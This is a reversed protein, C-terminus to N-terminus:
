LSFKKRLKFGFCFGSILWPKKGSNNLFVQLQPLQLAQQVLPISRKHCQPTGLNASKLPPGRSRTVKRPPFQYHWTLIWSKDCQDLAAGRHGGVRPIVAGLAEWGRRGGCPRRSNQDGPAGSAVGDGLRAGWFEIRLFNRSFFMCTQRKSFRGVAELKQSDWRQLRQFDIADGSTFLDECRPIQWILKSVVCRTPEELM